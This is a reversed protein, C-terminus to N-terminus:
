SRLLTGLFDAGAISLVSGLIILIIALIKGFDQTVLTNITEKDGSIQAGAAYIEEGILVYDSFAAFLPIQSPRATGMVQMAGTQFGAICLQASEAWVPGIVVNAAPQERRMIGTVASVFSFQETSHFRLIEPFDPEGLNEARWAERVYEELLPITDPQGVSVILKVGNQACLRAVYSFVALGAMIQPGTETKSLSGSGMGTTFHAPRGMETARGIAESIADVGALRRISPSFRDTSISMYFGVVFFALVIIFDFIRGEVFM